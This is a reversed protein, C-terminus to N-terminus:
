WSTASGCAGASGRSGACWTRAGTATTHTTQLVNSDELYRRSVTAEDPTGILWHSDDPDGLLRTFCSASDFRPLCLWDLSGRRSILAVTHGDGIM